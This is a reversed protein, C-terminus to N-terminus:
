SWIVGDDNLDNEIYNKVNPYDNIDLDFRMLEIRLEDVTNYKIGLKWLIGLFDNLDKVDDRDTLMLGSLNKEAWGCKDIMLEKTNLVYIQIHKMKWSILEWKGEVSAMDSKSHDNLWDEPMDLEKGVKKIIRKFCDPIGVTSDVDATVAGIRLEHYLLAFGGLAKVILPDMEEFEKNGSGIEIDVAEDLKEFATKFDELRCVDMM